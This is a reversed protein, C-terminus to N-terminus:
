LKEKPTVSQLFMGCVKAVDLTKLTKYEGPKGTIGFQRYQDQLTAFSPDNEYQDRMQFYCDQQTQLYRTNEPSNNTNVMAARVGEYHGAQCLMMLRPAMVGYSVAMQRQLRKNEEAGLKKESCARLKQSAQELAQMEQAQLTVRARQQQPEAAYANAVMLFCLPIFYRM